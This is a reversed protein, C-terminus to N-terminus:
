VQSQDPSPPVQNRKIESVRIWLLRFAYSKYRSFDRSSNTMANRCSSILTNYEKATLDKGSFTAKEALDSAASPIVIKFIRGMMTYYHYYAVARDNVTKASFKNKWYIVFVVRVSVIIFAAVSIVAVVTLVLKFFNRVAEPIEFKGDGAVEGSVTPGGSM